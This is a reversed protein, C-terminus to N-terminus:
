DATGRLADLEDPWWKHMAVREAWYTTRNYAAKVANTEVHALAREIADAQWKGSENLLIWAFTGRLNPSTALCM